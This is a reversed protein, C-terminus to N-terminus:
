KLAQLYAMLANMEESSLQGQFTPMMPVFGKVIRKNPENLSERIYNEDVVLKSGDIFEEERGFIGKLTPGTGPNGDVSHCAICGKAAFLTKGQEALSSLGVPAPAGAAVAQAATMLDAAQQLEWQRQWTEYAAPEMVVVKGLMASHGTGCYEACFIDHEGTLTPIFWLTTYMKPLVDQKVRFNPVFFSHIVDDSTMNLRIPQGAPLVLQREQVHGNTYQFKWKWKSAIVNIQLANAPPTRMHSYEKWGWAFMVMTVVFLFVSVGIETPTHGEIYPTLQEPRKRRGYRHTWIVVAGVIIVFCVISFWYIFIFIRDVEAAFNSAQPLQYASLLFGLM